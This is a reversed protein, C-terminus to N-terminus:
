RQQLCLSIEPIVRPKGQNVHADTRPSPLSRSQLHCWWSESVLREDAQGAKTARQAPSVCPSLRSAGAVMWVGFEDAYFNALTVDLHPGFALGQQPQSNARRQICSVVTVPQRDTAFSAPRSGRACPTRFIPPFAGTATLFMKM